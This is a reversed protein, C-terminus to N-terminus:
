KSKPFQGKATNAIINCADKFYRSITPYIILNVDRLEDREKTQEKPLIKLDRAIELHTKKNEGRKKAMVADYVDLQLKLTHISVHRHLPYKATSQNLETKKQRGRKTTHRSKLFKNFAIQLYRKSMSLPVELLVINKAALSEDWEDLDQLERLPHSLSQEGFLRQGREDESWWEKFNDHLVVGFDAYLDSLEGKGGDICCQRYEENRRM